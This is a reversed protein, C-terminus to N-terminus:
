ERRNRFLVKYFTQAYFFTQDGPLTAPSFGVGFLRIAAVWPDVAAITGDPNLTGWRPYDRPRNMWRKHYHRPQFLRASSKNIVDFITVPAPDDDRQDCWSVMDGRLFLPQGQLGPVPGLRQASESGVKAPYLKLIIELIKYEEYFIGFNTFDGADQPRTTQLGYRIEGVDDSQISQVNKFWRVNRTLNQAVRNTRTWLPRTLPAGWQRRKGYRDYSKRGRGRGRGAGAKMKNFPM